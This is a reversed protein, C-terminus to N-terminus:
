DCKQSGPARDTYGRGSLIIHSASPLASLRGAARSINRWHCRRKGGHTATVAGGCARVTLVVSVTPTNM